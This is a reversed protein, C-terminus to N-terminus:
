ASQTRKAAEEQSLITVGEVQKMCGLVYRRALYKNTQQSRKMFEATLEPLTKTGSSEVLLERCIESATKAGKRVTINRKLNSM